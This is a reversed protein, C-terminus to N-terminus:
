RLAMSASRACSSSSLACTSYDTPHTRTRSRSASQKFSRSTCATPQRRWTSSTERVRRRTGALRLGRRLALAQARARSPPHRVVLHRCRIARARATVTLPRAQRARRTGTGRLTRTRRQAHGRLLRSGGWADGSPRGAAHRASAWRGYQPRPRSSRGATRTRAPCAGRGDPAPAQGSPGPLYRAVCDRNTWEEGPVGVTHLPRHTDAWDGAHRKCRHCRM